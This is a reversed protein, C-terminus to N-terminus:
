IPDECAIKAKELAAIQEELAKRPVDQNAVCMKSISKIDVDTGAHKKILGLVDGLLGNNDKLAREETKDLAECFEKTTQGVRARMGKLADLQLNIIDKEVPSCKAHQEGPTPVPTQPAGQALAFTAGGITAATAIIV